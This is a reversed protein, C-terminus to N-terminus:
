DELSEETNKQPLKVTVRYVHNKNYPDGPVCLQVGIIDAPSYLDVRNDKTAKSNKDIRYILMLPVSDKGAARRINDIDLQSTIEGTQKYKEIVTKEIDAVTDKIARLAGISITDTIASSSLLRSRNVKGINFGKINWRLSDTSCGKRAEGAGAVIVTWKNLDTDPELKKLWDEFMDMENFVKARQSFSFQKLFGNYIQDYTLNEWYISNGNYSIGPEGSISNLFSETVDINKQMISADNDFVTTQPRAGSFDMDAKTMARSHNAATLKLWSVKPSALIRPAYEDPRVETEMYKKLDNRLDNELDSLFVFKDQTDATMWIRPYLEYSRRYGFWRGMQMLTDAQSSSRLFFTCVLGELTLGRSLTSGGVILFAPAPAPYNESDPDPYVLRVFDGDDTIGTKSCNDIVLHVGEHYILDGEETIKIHKMSQGILLRIESEIEDFSPYDRINEFPIGYKPFQDHWEEKTPRNTETEWVARCKKIITEGNRNNEFWSSIAEAVLDHHIQKQSTHVLMSVPKKYGSYRMAAICCIFWCVSDELSQPLSSLNGDYINRVIDLDDEEVTRVIDLGTGDEELSTGFIQESGIYEDSSKLAWVFDKPYLSEETAENLFNAYPTATYMVYNVALARGATREPDHHTGNVLDVILKNIGRRERIIRSDPDTATNSISAQDAEDDIILIRMQDHSARDANLWDLLKKLRGANKLCVTLYRSTSEKSFDLDRTRSGIPSAGSPHELIQWNLTGHRNLDRQMRRLTQIRLNEITGSLVIFMNWGYDAAMAMLAEMNATKGSQVHGIVLGKIPGTSQTNSSLRRLIGLTAAELVEISEEKWGLNKKYLQWTSNPNEPVRLKNDEGPAFLAGDSGRREVTLALESYEKVEAVLQKWDEVSFVPWDDEEARRSLFSALQEESPKCAMIVDQWEANEAKKEIWKRCDDYIPSDFKGM